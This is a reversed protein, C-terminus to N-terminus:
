PTILKLGFNGRSFFNIADTLEGSKTVEILTNSGERITIVKIEYSYLLGRNKILIHSHWKPLEPLTCEGIPENTSHDIIEYKPLDDASLECELIIYKCGMVTENKDELLIYSKNPPEYAISEVNFRTLKEKGLDLDVKYHYQENFPLHSIAVEKKM